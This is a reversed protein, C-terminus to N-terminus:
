IHLPSCFSFSSTNRRLLCFFFFNSGTQVFLSSSSRCRQARTFFLRRRRVHSGVIYVALTYELASGVRTDCNQRRRRKRSNKNKKKRELTRNQCRHHEAYLFFTCYLPCMELPCRLLLLTCCNFSFFPRSVSLVCEVFVFLLLSCFLFLRVCAAFVTVRATKSRSFSVACDNNQITIGM